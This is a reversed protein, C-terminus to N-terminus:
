CKIVDAFFENLHGLCDIVMDCWSVYHMEIAILVQCIEKQELNLYKSSCRYVTVMVSSIVYCVGIM